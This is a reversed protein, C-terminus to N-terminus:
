EPHFSEVRWLWVAPTFTRCRADVQWVTFAQFICYFGFRQKSYGVSSLALHSMRCEVIYSLICGNTAAYPTYARGSDSM